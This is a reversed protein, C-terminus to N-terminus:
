KRAFLRKANFFFNEVKQWDEDAFTYVKKGFAIAKRWYFYALVIGGPVGLALGVIFAKVAVNM